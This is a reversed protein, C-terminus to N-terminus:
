VPNTKLILDTPKLTKLRTIGDSIAVENKKLDTIQLLIIHTVEMM